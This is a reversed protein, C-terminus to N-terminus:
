AGSVEPDREVDSLVQSGRHNDAGVKYVTVETRNADHFPDDLASATSDGTAFLGGDVGLFNVHPCGLWRTGPLRVSGHFIQGAAGNLSRMGDTQWRHGLM